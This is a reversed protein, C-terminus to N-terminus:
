DIGLMDWFTTSPISFPDPGFIRTMWPYRRALHGEDLTWWKTPSTVLLVDFRILPVGYMAPERLYTYDKKFVSEFRVRQDFIPSLEKLTFQETNVLHNSDRTPWIV